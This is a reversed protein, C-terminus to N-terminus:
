GGFERREMRVKDDSAGVGAVNEEIVSAVTGM